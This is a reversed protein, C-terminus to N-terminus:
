KEAFFDYTGLHRLLEVRSISEILKCDCEFKFTWTLSTLAFYPLLFKIKQYSLEFVRKFTQITSRQEVVQRIHQMFLLFLPWRNATALHGTHGSFIALHRYFNGLLSKVLFILSKPVKVFIAQSHPLNPCFLQQWLRQYNAWLGIFRGIQDCQLSIGGLKQLCSPRRVQKLLLGVQTYFVIGITNDWKSKRVFFAWIKALFREMQTERVYVFTLLYSHM